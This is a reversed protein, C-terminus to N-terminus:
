GDVTGLNRHILASLRALDRATKGPYAHVAYFGGGPGVKDCKETAVDPESQASAEPVPSTVGDLFADAIAGVDGGDGAASIARESSSCAAAILYTALGAVLTRALSIPRM